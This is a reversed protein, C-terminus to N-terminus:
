IRTSPAFTRFDSYVMPYITNENINKEIPSKCIPKKLIDKNIKLTSVQSRRFLIQCNYCSQTLVLINVM